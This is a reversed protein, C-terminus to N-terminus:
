PRPPGGRIVRWPTVGSPFFNHSFKCLITFLRPRVPLLLHPTVGELPTVGLHFSYFHCLHCFHRRNEFSFLYPHFQLVSLHCVTIVLLTAQKKMFFIHTVRDTPAGPSVLGLSAVSM